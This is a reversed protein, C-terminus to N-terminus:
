ARWDMPKSVSWTAAFRGIVGGLLGGTDIGGRADAARSEVRRLSGRIEDEQLVETQRM